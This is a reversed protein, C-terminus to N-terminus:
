VGERELIVQRMLQSVNYFDIVLQPSIFLTSGCSVNYCLIDLQKLKM